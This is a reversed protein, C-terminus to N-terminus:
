KASTKRTFIFETDSIKKMNYNPSSSVSAIFGEVANHLPFFNNGNQGSRTDLVIYDPKIAEFDKNLLIVHYHTLHSAINNQTMILGDRPIKDIFNRIFVAKATDEYFVKNTALLLPGHLYFRHLFVVILIISVSLIQIFRKHKLLHYIYLTELSATLLLPSLVANYHFGLDWRTAASNFVFREIFNEFIMPLSAISFVPLFGFTLFSLFITKTKIFPLFLEQIFTFPDLPIHPSYKYPAELFYPMIIKASLFAWIISIIITILGVRLNKDKRLLIYIGIGFAVGALSEQFGITLFLSLFYLTWKKQWLFYLAAMLFPLSFVINHIDTFLANQIGVYGLYAFTLAFSLLINKSIKKSLLYGILGSSSVFIVQAILIAEPRDTLWYIPTLMIISPNFHDGWVVLGSPPKLQEIYPLQLHSLKWITTDLIGFDYWFSNVQWYRNLSVLSAAVAYLLIFSIIIWLDLHKKLFTM